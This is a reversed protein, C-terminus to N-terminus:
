VCRDSLSGGPMYPAVAMGHWDRGHAAPKQLIVERLLAAPLCLRGWLRTLLQSFGPLAFVRYGCVLIAPFIYRPSCRLVSEPVPAAYPHRGSNLIKGIM